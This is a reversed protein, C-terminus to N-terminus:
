VLNGWIVSMVKICVSKLDPRNYSPVQHLYNGLTYVHQSSTYTNLDPRNYSPGQHLYNGLTYVHQSWTYTNLEPKNYSPVRYSWWTEHFETRYNRLDATSLNMTRPFFSLFSFLLLLLLLFFCLLFLLDGLNQMNHDLTHILNLNTIHPFKTYTIVWHMSMNHDLTHILTLLISQKM